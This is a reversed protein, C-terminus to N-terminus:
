KAILPALFAVKHPVPPLGRMASECMTDAVDVEISRGVSM